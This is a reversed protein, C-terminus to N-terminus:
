GIIGAAIETGAIRAGDADSIRRIGGDEREVVVKRRQRRLNGALRDIFTAQDLAMRLPADTTNEAIRRAVIQRWRPQLSRLKAGDDVFPNRLSALEPRQGPDIVDLNELIVAGDAPGAAPVRVALDPGAGINRVSRQCFLGTLFFIAVRM